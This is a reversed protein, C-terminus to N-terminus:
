LLYNGYEAVRAQTLRQPLLISHAGLAFEGEFTHHLAVVLEVRAQQHALLFFLGVCRKNEQHGCVRSTKPMKM